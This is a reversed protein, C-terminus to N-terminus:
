RPDGVLEVAQLQARLLAQRRLLIGILTMSSVDSQTARAALGINVGYLTQLFALLAGSPRETGTPIDAGFFVHDVWLRDADVLSVGALLRDRLVNIADTERSDVREPRGFCEQSATARPVQSSFVCWTLLSALAARSVLYGVGCDM